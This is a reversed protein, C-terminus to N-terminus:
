KDNCGYTILRQFDQVDNLRAWSSWTFILDNLALGLCYGQTTQPKPIIVFCETDVLDPVGLEAQCWSLFLRLLLDHVTSGRVTFLGIPPLYIETM